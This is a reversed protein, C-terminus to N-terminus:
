QQALPGNERDREYRTDAAVMPWDSADLALLFIKDLIENHREDSIDTLGAARIDRYENLIMRVDAWCFLQESDPPLSDANQDRVGNRTIATRRWIGGLMPIYLYIGAHEGDPVWRVAPPDVNVWSARSLPGRTRAQQPTPSTTLGYERLIQRAQELRAHSEGWGNRYFRGMQALADVMQPLTTGAPITDEGGIAAVLAARTQALEDSV